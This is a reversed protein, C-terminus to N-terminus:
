PDARETGGVLLVFKGLCFTFILIRLHCYSFVSFHSLISSSLFPIFAFCATRLIWVQGASQPGWATPFAFHSRSRLFLFHDHFSVCIVDFSLVSPCSGLSGGFSKVPLFRFAFPLAGADAWFAFTIHWPRELQSLQRYLFLPCMPGVLQLLNFLFSKDKLCIRTSCNPFHSPPSCRSMGRRSYQPKAGSPNKDHGSGSYQESVRSHKWEQETSPITMCLLDCSCVLILVTKM